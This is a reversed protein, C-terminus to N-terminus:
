VKPDLNFFLIIFNKWVLSLTYYIFIKPIFPFCSDYFYVTSIGIYIFCFSSTFMWNLSILFSYVLFLILLFFVSTSNSFMFIISNIFLHVFRKRQSSIYLITFCGALRSFIFISVLPLCANIYMNIYMNHYFRWSM